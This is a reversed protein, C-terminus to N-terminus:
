WHTPFLLTGPELKIVHRASRHDVLSLQIVRGWEINPAGTSPWIRDHPSAGAIASSTFKEVESRTM